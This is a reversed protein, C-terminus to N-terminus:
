RRGPAGPRLALGDEGAVGFQLALGLDAADEGPAPLDRLGGRAVFDFQDEGLGREVGLGAALRGVGAEDGAVAEDDLDQVDLTGDLAQAHM